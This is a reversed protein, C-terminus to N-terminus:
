FQFYIFEQQVGGFLLITMVLGLYISWRLVGYRLDDIQMAHEKRRQIWEISLLIIVIFIPKVSFIDPISFLSKSFLISLYTFSSGITESRFFVWAIMIILMTIMTEVAIILLNDNKIGIKKLLTKRPNRQWQYLILFFGHILGWLIFTYNAGHWLGTLFWTILSALIYIFMDSRM